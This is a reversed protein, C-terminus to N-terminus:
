NMKIWIEESVGRDYELAKFDTTKFDFQMDNMDCSTFPRRNYMLQYLIIGIAWIDVSSGYERDKMEPAKYIETGVGM